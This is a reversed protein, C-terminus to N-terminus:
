QGTEINSNFCAPEEGSTRSRAFGFGFSWIIAWRWNQQRPQIKIEFKGSQKKLWSAKQAHYAIKIYPRGVM